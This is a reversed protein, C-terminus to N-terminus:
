IITEETENSSDEEQFDDEESESIGLKEQITEIKDNIESFMEELWEKDQWNM